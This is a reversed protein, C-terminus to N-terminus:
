QLNELHQYIASYSLIRAISDFAGTETWSPIGLACGDKTAIAIGGSNGQEIKASTKIFEGFSGEFGSVIGETVTVSTGGVFPYGLIFVREGLEVSREGRCTRASIANVNPFFGEPFPKPLLFTQGDKTSVPETITLVAFDIGSVEKGDILATRADYATINGAWYVREYFGGDPAPFYVFCGRSLEGLQGSEDDNRVLHANTQVTGDEGAVGSGLKFGEAGTSEFFCHLQVVAPVFAEISFTKQRGRLGITVALVAFAVSIVLISISADRARIRHHTFAKQPHTQHSGSAASPRNESVTHPTHNEAKETRGEM